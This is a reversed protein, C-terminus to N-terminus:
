VVRETLTRALVYNPAKFIFLTLVFSRLLFARWVAEEITTMPRAQRADDYEAMLAMATCGELAAWQPIPRVSVRTCARLNRVGTCVAEEITTM